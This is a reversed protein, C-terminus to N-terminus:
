RPHAPLGLLLERGGPAPGVPAARTPHAPRRKPPRPAPDLTAEGPRPAMARHHRPHRHSATSLGPVAVRDTGRVGSSRGLVTTTQQGPPTVRHGRSATRPNGREKITRQPGATGAVGHGAPLDPVATTGGRGVIMGSSWRGAIDCTVATSPWNPVWVWSPNDKAMRLILTKTPAPTPRRGLRHRDRYDWKRTVLRRHWTLLTAPTVPFVGAWRRRPILRALASLWIRDATTYRVRTSQRAPGCERAAPGAAGHGEIDGPPLSRDARWAPCAGAPVAPIVAGPSSRL